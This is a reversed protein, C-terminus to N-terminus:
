ATVHFDITGTDGNLTVAVYESKTKEKMETLAKELETISAIATHVYADSRPSAPASVVGTRIKLDGDYRYLDALLLDAAEDSELYSPVIVRHLNEKAYDSLYCIGMERHGVIDRFYQSDSLPGSRRPGHRGFRRGGDKILENGIVKIDNILKLLADGGVEVLQNGEVNYFTFTTDLNTYYRKLITLVNGLLLIEDASHRKTNIVINKFMHSIGDLIPNAKDLMEDIADNAPFIESVDKRPIVIANDITVRQSTLNFFVPKVLSVVKM